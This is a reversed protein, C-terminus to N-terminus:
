QQNYLSVRSLCCFQWRFRGSVRMQFRLQHCSTQHTEFHGYWKTYSVIAPVGRLSGARPVLTYYRDISWRRFDAPPYHFSKIEVWFFQYILVHEHDFGGVQAVGSQTYSRCHVIKSTSSVSNWDIAFHLAMPGSISTNGLLHTVVM